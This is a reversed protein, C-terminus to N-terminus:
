PGTIGIRYAQGLSPYIGTLIDRAVSSEAEIATIARAVSLVDGRRIGAVLAGADLRPRTVASSM